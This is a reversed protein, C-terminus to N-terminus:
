KKDLRMSFFLLCQPETILRFVLLLLFFGLFLVTIFSFSCWFLYERFFYLGKKGPQISRNPIGDDPTSYCCCRAENELLVFPEKTHRLGRIMKVTKGAQCQPTQQGTIRFASPWWWESCIWEMKCISTKPLHGASQWSRTVSDLM